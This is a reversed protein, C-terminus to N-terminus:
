SIELRRLIERYIKEDDYFLYNYNPVIPRLYIESNIEDIFDDLSECTSTLAVEDSDPHVKIDALDTELHWISEQRGYFIFNKCGAVILSLVQKRIFDIDHIHEVIMFCTITGNKLDMIGCEIDLGWFNSSLMETASM